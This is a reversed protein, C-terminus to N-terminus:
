VESRRGRQRRHYTLAAAVCSSLPGEPLPGTLDVLVARNKDFALVDSFQSRFSEVLTTNCNFPIACTTDSSKVAGLRITSGSKSQETLYAPEGWKLTETLPSVGDLAAATKFIMRRLELLRRRVPPSFRDFAAAVAAPIAPAGRSM